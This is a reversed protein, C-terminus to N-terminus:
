IGLRQIATKYDSPTNINLFERSDSFNIPKARVKEIINQLRFDGKKLSDQLLPLTNKSWVAILPHIKHSDVAFVIDFDQSENCLSEITHPAVFPCDCSMFFIKESQLQTFASIIGIIPAHIQPAFIPASEIIFIDRPNASSKFSEHSDQSEGFNKLSKEILDRQNEKCAIFVRKFIHRMKLFIHAILSKDGFLLLIKSEGNAGRLRSSKGGCLIVCDMKGGLFNKAIIANKITFRVAYLNLLPLDHCNRAKKDNCSKAFQAICM